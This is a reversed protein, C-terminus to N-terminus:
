HRWQFAGDEFINHWVFTMFRKRFGTDYEIKNRYDTNNQYYCLGMEINGNFLFFFLQM